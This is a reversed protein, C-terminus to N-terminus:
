PSINTGSSSRTWAFSTCPCFARNRSRSPTPLANSLTMPRWSSLTTACLPSRGTITSSTTLLRSPRRRRMIGALLRACRAYLANSPILGMGTGSCSGALGSSSCRATTRLTRGSYGTRPRLFIGICSTECTRMRRAPPARPSAWPPRPPPQDLPVRVTTSLRSPAVPMWRARTRRLCRCRRRAPARALWSARSWRLTAGSFQTQSRLRPPTTSASASTCFM